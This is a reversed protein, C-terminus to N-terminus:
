KQDRKKPGNIRFSLGFRNYTKFEVPSLYGFEYTFGFYRSINLAFGVSAGWSFVTASYDYFQGKGFESCAGIQGTAYLDVIRFSPNIIAPFLHLKVNATYNIATYAHAFRGIVSIGAEIWNNLGYEFDLSPCIRSHDGSYSEETPILLGVNVNFRNRIYPFKEQCQSTLCTAILAIAIIIQKINKMTIHKLRIM